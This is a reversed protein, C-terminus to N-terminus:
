MLPMTWPSKPVPNLPWGTESCSTRANGMVIRSATSATSKSIIAPM